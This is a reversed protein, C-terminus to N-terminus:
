FGYCNKNKLDKNKQFENDLLFPINLFIMKLNELYSFNSRLDFDKFFM